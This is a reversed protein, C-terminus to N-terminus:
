RPVSRAEVEGPCTESRPAGETWVARVRGDRPDCGVAARRDFPRNDVMRRAAVRELRQARGPRRRRFRLHVRCRWAFNRWWRPWSTRGLDPAGSSPAPLCAGLERIRARAVGAPEGNELRAVSRA